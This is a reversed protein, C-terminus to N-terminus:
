RPRVLGSAGLLVWFVAAASAVYLADAFFWSVAVAAVAGRLAPTFLRHEQDGFLRWMGVMLAVLLATVVVGFDAGALLYMNDVSLRAPDEISAIPDLGSVEAAYARRFGGAGVGTVPHRLAVRLAASGTLFRHEFSESAAIDQTLREAAGIAPVAGSMMLGVVLVGTLATALVVRSGGSTTGPRVVGILAVVAGVGAALLSGRTGSAVIGTVIILASLSAATRRWGATVGALGVAVAAAPAMAVAAFVPHGILSLARYPVVHPKYPLAGAASRAITFSSESRYILGLWGEVVPNAHIVSEAVAYVGILVGMGVMSWLVTRIGVAGQGKLALAVIVSLVLGSLVWHATWQLADMRQSAFVASISLAGFLAITLWGQPTLSMVRHDLRGARHSWRMLGLLLMCLLLCKVPDLTLGAASFRLPPVFQTPLLAFWALAGALAWRGGAVAAVGTLLLAVLLLVGWGILAVLVGAGLAATFAVLSLSLGHWVIPRHSATERM